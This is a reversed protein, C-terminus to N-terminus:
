SPVPFDPDKPIHFWGRPWTQFTTTPPSCDMPNCLTPCSQTVESLDPGANRSPQQQIHPGEWSPIDSPLFDRERWRRSQSVM